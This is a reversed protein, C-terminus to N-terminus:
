RKLLGRVAEMGWLRGWRERCIWGTKRRIRGPMRVVYPNQRWGPFREEMQRGARAALDRRGCQFFRMGGLLLLHLWWLYETEEPYDQELAERLREAAPFIDELSNRYGEQRMISQPSQAYHYVPMGTWGIRGTRLVLLPLTALDEYIQGEPFRLSGGWPGNEWLSRRVWKNWPCPRTLLYERSSLEGDGGPRAAAEFATYPRKSGEPLEEWGDFLLIDWNQSQRLDWLRGLCNEELWDDSDVWTVFEGRAASLGANRAAAVGQNEQCILSIREPERRRYEELIRRSGDTSGDDVLIVEYDSLDQRLLSEVCRRLTEERNYVPVLISLKM